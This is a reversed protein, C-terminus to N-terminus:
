GNEQLRPFLQEATGRDISRRQAESMAFAEYM